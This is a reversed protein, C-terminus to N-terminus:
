PLCREPIESLLDSETMGPELYDRPPAPRPIDTHPHGTFRRFGYRECSHICALAIAMHWTGEELVYAGSHCVVDEGTQPNHMPFEDRHSCATLLACCVFLCSGGIFSGTIRM